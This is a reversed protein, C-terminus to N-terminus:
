IAEVYPYELELPPGTFVNFILEVKDIDEEGLCIYHYSYLNKELYKLGSLFQLFHSNNDHLSIYDLGLLITEDNNQIIAEKSIFLDDFENKQYFDKLAEYGDSYLKCRYDKRVLTDMYYEVGSMISFIRTHTYNQLYEQRYIQYFNNRM